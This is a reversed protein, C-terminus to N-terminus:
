NSLGASSGGSVEEPYEETKVVSTTSSKSRSCFWNSVNLTKSPENNRSNFFLTKNKHFNRSM